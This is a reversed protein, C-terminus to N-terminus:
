VDEARAPFFVTRVPLETHSLWSWVDVMEKEHKRQIMHGLTKEWFYKRPKAQM